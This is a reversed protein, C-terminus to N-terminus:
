APWRAEPVTGVPLGPLGPVTPPGQTIEALRDGAALLARVMTSVLVAALCGFTLLLAPRGRADTGTGLGHVVAVPWMLYALRHVTRWTRYGIRHRLATSVALALLLDLAITGLGLWFPRYPSRFPLVVDVLAIDVYDDAVSTAVHLVLLVLGLLSLNRHLELWVFRPAPSRVRRRTAYQGLVIAATFVVLLVLGSARNLYWLTKPDNLISLM